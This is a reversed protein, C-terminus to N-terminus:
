KTFLRGLERGTEIDLRAELSRWSRAVLENGDIAIALWADGAGGPPDVRWVETGDERIRRLPNWRVERGEDEAVIVDSSGPVQLLLSEREPPVDRAYLGRPGAEGLRAGM